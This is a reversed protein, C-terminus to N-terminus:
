IEYRGDLITKNTIEEIRDEPFNLSRLHEQFAWEGFFTQSIEGNLSIYFKDKQENYEVVVPQSTM